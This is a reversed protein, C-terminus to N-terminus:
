GTRNWGCEPCGAALNHCLDYKCRPCLGKRQRLVCRIRRYPFVLAFVASGYFATNLAMGMAIVKTPM